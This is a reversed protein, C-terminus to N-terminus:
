AVPKITLESEAEPAVFSVAPPAAIVPKKSTSETQVDRLMAILFVAATGLILAGFIFDWFLSGFVKSKM